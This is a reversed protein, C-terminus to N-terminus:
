FSFDLNIQFILKDRRTRISRIESFQGKFERELIKESNLDNIFYLTNNVVLLIIYTKYYLEALKPVLDLELNFIYKGKKSVVEKLPHTHRISYTNGEVVLFYSNDQNFKIIESKRQEM